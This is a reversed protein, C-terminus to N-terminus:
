SAAEWASGRVVLAPGRCGPGARLRCRRRRGRRRRWTVRMPKCSRRAAGAALRVPGRGGSSSPRSATVSRSRLTCPFRRETHSRFEQPREASPHLVPNDPVGHNAAASITRRMGVLPRRDHAGPCAMLSQSRGASPRGDQRCVPASGDRDRGRCTFVKTLRDLQNPTSCIRAAGCAGTSVSAIAGSSPDHELNASM